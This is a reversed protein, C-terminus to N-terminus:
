FHGRDFLLVLVYTVYEMKDDVAKCRSYKYFTNLNDTEGITDCMFQLYKKRIYEVMVRRLRLKSVPSTYPSVQTPSYDSRPSYPSSAVSSQHGLSQEGTFYYEEEYESKTSSADDPTGIDCEEDDDDEVLTFYSFAYQIVISNANDSMASSDAIQYNLM